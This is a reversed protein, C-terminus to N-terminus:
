QAVAVVSGDLVCWRLCVSAFVCVCLCECRMAFVRQYVRCTCFLLFRSVLFVAAAFFFWLITKSSLHYVACEYGYMCRYADPSQLADTRSRLEFIIESVLSLPRVISFFSRRLRFVLSWTQSQGDREHETRRERDIARCHRFTASMRTYPNKFITDRWYYHVCVYVHTLASHTRTCVYQKAHRMASRSYMKHVRKPYMELVKLFKQAQEAREATNTHTHSMSLALSRPLCIIHIPRHTSCM